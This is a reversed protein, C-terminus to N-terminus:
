DWADGVQELWARFRDDWHLDAGIGLAELYWRDSGDHQAALEAWLSSAEPSGDFRLAIAAERRVAPSPDRVVKAVHQLVQGADYQRAARLATIRLNPDADSLGRVIWAEGRGDIGSLLWLARARFHAPESSNE